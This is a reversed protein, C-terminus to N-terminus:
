KKKIFRIVADLYNVKLIRASALLLGYYILIAVVLKWFLHASGMLYNVVFMVLMGSVVCHLTIKFINLLISKNVVNINERRKLYIGPLIYHAFSNMVVFAAAIVYPSASFFKLSM